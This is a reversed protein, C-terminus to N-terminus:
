TVEMPLEGAIILTAAGTEAHRFDLRDDTSITAPCQPLGRNRPVASLPFVTRHRLLWDGGVQVGDSIRAPRHAAIARM